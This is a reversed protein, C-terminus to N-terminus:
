IALEYFLKSALSHNKLLNVINEKEVTYFLCSTKSRVSYVNTGCILVGVEGFFFGEEM